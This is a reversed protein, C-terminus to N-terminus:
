IEQDREMRFRRVEQCYAKSTTKFFDNKYFKGVKKLTLRLPM